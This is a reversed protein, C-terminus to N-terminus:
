LQWRYGINLNFQFAQYADFRDTTLRLDWNTSSFEITPTFRQADLLLTMQGSGLAFRLGLDVFNLQAQRKANVVYSLQEAQYVAGLTTTIPLKIHHDKAIELGRFLPLFSQYGESNIYSNNTSAKGQTYGLNAIMFRSFLDKVALNLQLNKSAQWQVDLDVNAGWGGTEWSNDNPRKLINTDTYHDYFSVDGNLESAQDTQLNAAIYSDRLSDVSWLGVTIKTSIQQNNWLYGLSVGTSQLSLIDLVLDYDQNPALTQDNQDNYYVAATASNSEIFYDLRKNVSWQWHNTRYSLSFRNQTFGSSADSQPQQRWSDNILHGVPLINSYSSSSFEIAVEHRKSTDSPSLYNSAEISGSLALGVTFCSLYICKPV